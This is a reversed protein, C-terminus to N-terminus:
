TVTYRRNRLLEGTLIVSRTDLKERLRALFTLLSCSQDNLGSQAASHVLWSRVFM